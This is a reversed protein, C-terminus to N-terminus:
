SSVFSCSKNLASGLGEKSSKGLLLTLATRGLFSQAFADFTANAQLGASANRMKQVGGNVIFAQSWRLRCVSLSLVWRRM